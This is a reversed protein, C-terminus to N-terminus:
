WRERATKAVPSQDGPGSFNMVFCNDVLVVCKRCIDNKKWSLDQSDLAAAHQARGEATVGTGNTSVVAGRVVNADEEQSEKVGAPLDNFRSFAEMRFQCAM